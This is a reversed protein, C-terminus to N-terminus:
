EAQRQLAPRPSPSLRCAAVPQVTRTCKLCESGAEGSQMKSQMHLPVPLVHPLAPRSQLVLTLTPTLTLKSWSWGHKTGFQAFTWIAFASDLVTNRRIVSLIPRVFLLGCSRVVGACTTQGSQTGPAYKNTMLRIVRWAHWTYASCCKVTM